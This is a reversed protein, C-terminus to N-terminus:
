PNVNIGHIRNNYYRTNIAQDQVSALLAETLAKLHSKTLWEYIAVLDAQQTRCWNDVSSDMYQSKVGGKKANKQKIKKLNQKTERGRQQAANAIKLKSSIKTLMDENKIYDNLFIMKGLMTEEISKLGQGGKTRKIYIKEVDDRPYIEHFINMIKKTARDMERIAYSMWDNVEASYSLMTITIVM